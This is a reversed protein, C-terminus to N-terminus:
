LYPRWAATETIATGSEAQTGQGTEAPTRLPSGELFAPIKKKLKTSRKLDATGLTLPGGGKPRQLNLHPPPHPTPTLSPFLCSFWSLSRKKLHACLIAKAIVQLIKPFVAM